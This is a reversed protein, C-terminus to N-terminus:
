HVELCICGIWPFRDFDSKRARDFRVCVCVCRCVCGISACVFVGVCGCECVCVCCVRACACVIGIRACAFVGM